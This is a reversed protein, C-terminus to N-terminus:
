WRQGGKAKTPKRGTRASKNNGAGRVWRVEGGFGSSFLWRRMWSKWMRGGRVKEEEVLGM